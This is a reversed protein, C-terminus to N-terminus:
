LHQLSDRKQNFVRSNRELWSIWVFSLWILNLINCVNKTFGGFLGFWLLHKSVQTPHVTTLGLWNYISFWIKDFFDDSIFINNIDEEHGSDGMYFNTNLQLVM